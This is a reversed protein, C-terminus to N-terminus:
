AWCLAAEEERSSSCAKAKSGAACIATKIDAYDSKAQKGDVMVHPVFTRKPFTKKWVASAAALLTTGESGNYCALLAADDISSASACAKAAALAKTEKSDDMCALFSVSNAMTANSFACVTAKEWNCNTEEICAKSPDRM